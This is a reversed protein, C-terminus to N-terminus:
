PAQFTPVGGGMRRRDNLETGKLPAFCEHARDNMHEPSAEYPRRRESMGPAQHAVCWLKPGTARREASRQRAVMQQDLERMADGVGYGTTYIGFGGGSLLAGTAVPIGAGELDSNPEM